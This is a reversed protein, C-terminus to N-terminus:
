SLFHVFFNFLRFARCNGHLVRERGGRGGWFYSFQWSFHVFFNFLQFSGSNGRSGARWARPWGSLVLIVVFFSCRIVFTRSNGRITNAVESRFGPRKGSGYSGWTNVVSSPSFCIIECPGTTM